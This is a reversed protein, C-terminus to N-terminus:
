TGILTRIHEMQEPSLRRRASFTVGDNAKRPIIHVHIHPVLQHAAKGDNVSINAGQASMKKMITENLEQAKTFLKAVTAEPIEGLREYHRKTVLLTHGDTIPRNDLFAILDDDEYVIHAPAKRAIIDCFVCALDTL